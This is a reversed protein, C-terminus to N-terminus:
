ASRPLALIDDPILKGYAAVVGLDPRWDRLAAAFAPDKLRTPSFCRCAASWRWRRSPRM